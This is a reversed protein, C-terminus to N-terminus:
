PSVESFILTIGSNIEPIKRAPHCESRHHCQIMAPSVSKRNDMTSGITMDPEPLLSFKVNQLLLLLKVSYPIFAARLLFFFRGLISSQWYPPARNSSKNHEELFTVTM